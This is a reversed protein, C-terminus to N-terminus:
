IGWNRQEEGYAHAETRFGRQAITRSISTVNPLSFESWVLSAVEAPAPRCQGSGCQVSTDSRLFIVLSEPSAAM